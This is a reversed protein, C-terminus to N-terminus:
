SRGRALAALLSAVLALGIVVMAIDVALSAAIVSVAALAVLGLNAAFIRCVIEVTRLGADGARQYYHTRHAEWFKEGTAARRMLTLTSDAVFYLPLLVAAAWHGSGAVLLLLWGTLLGIPLSGMDGMFLRAVPRNFPAFGLMAGNLALAVILAEPPLAGLAGVVAVGATIPVIEAVLMWDIGDMFNVINVFWIGGVFVLVREISVPVIPLIRLDPPLAALVMAVAAAQGVLKPAAGLNRLDDVAGVAALLLAAGLVLGMRAATGELPGPLFILACVTVGVTAAVVAIGGWQPTLAQHSSRATPVALAFRKFAPKLLVILASTTLLSLLLVVLGWPGVVQWASGGETM